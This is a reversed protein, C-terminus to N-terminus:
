GVTKWGGRWDWVKRANEGPLPLLRVELSPLEVLACSRNFLTSGPNVVLLDGLREAFLEGARRVVAMM